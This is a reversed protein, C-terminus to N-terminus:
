RLGERMPRHMTSRCAEDWEDADIVGAEVLKDITWGGDRMHSRVKLILATIERPSLRTKLSSNKEILLEKLQGGSEPARGELNQLGGELNQIGELNQRPLRERGQTLDLLVYRNAKQRGGDVVSEVQIMRHKELVRLKERVTSAGIALKEALWNVRISAEGGHNNTRRCLAIYVGLATIGIRSAYEDVLVNDVMFWGTRRRDSVVIVEDEGSM